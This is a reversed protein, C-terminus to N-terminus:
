SAQQSMQSVLLNASSLLGNLKKVQDSSPDSTEWAEVVNEMRLIASNWDAESAEASAMQAWAMRLKNEHATDPHLQSYRTLFSIMDKYHVDSALCARLGGFIRVADYAPDSESPLAKSWAAIAEKRYTKWNKHYKGHLDDSKNLGLFFKSYAAYALEKLLANADPGLVYSYM